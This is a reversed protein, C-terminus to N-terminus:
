TSSVDIYLCTLLPYRNSMYMYQGNVHAYALYRRGRTVNKVNSQNELVLLQEEDTGVDMVWYTVGTTPDNIIDVLTGRCQFVRERWQEFLHSLQKYDMKWAKASYDALTPKYRVTFSLSAPRRGDMTARFRVINDGFTSLKAIFSFRGTSIDVALSEPIYDTDVAIMAGPEATGTIAITRASSFNSVTTDLELNIDYHERYIILDKRFERHHPTRVIITIVNDGIPKVSVHTSLAGARDVKDTVNESNIYVTSGPVVNLELPYVSTIVTARDKEPTIVNLPSDPVDIKFNCAPLKTKKGTEGVLTPTLTIDAHDIGTVDQGFWDSDPVVIRAVGGSITLSRDLEPVFVQDGDKGYFVIAHGQRMDDLQVLNLTPAYAGRTYLRNLQYNQMWMVLKYVGILLAVVSAVSFLAILASHRRTRPARGSEEEAEPGPFGTPATLPQKCSPCYLADDACTSGCYPCKLAKGGM